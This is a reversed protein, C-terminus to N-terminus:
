RQRRGQGRGVALHRVGDSYARHTDFAGANDQLCGEYVAVGGGHASGVAQQRCFVLTAVYRVFTLRRQIHVFHTYIYLM